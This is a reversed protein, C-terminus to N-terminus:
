DPSPWHYRQIGALLLADFLDYRKDAPKAKRVALETLPQQALKPM